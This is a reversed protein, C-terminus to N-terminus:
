LFKMACSQKKTKSYIDPIRVLYSRSGVTCAATCIRPSIHNSSIIDEARWPVVTWASHLFQVTALPVTKAKEKESKNNQRYHNNMVSKTNEPGIAPFTGSIFTTHM